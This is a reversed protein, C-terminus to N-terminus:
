NNFGCIEDIQRNIKQLKLTYQKVIKRTNLYLLAEIVTLSLYGAKYLQEESVGFSSKRMKNISMELIDINDFISKLNLSFDLNYIIKIGCDIFRTYTKYVKTHLPRLLRNIMTKSVLENLTLGAGFLISNRLKNRNRPPDRPPNRPTNRPPEVVSTQDGTSQTPHFLLPNGHQDYGVPFGPGALSPHGLAHGEQTVTQIPTGDPYTVPTGAHIFTSDFRQLRANRMQEPVGTGFKSSKGTLSKLDKRMQRISPM